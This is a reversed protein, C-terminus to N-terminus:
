LIAWTERKLKKNKKKWIINVVHFPTSKLGLFLGSCSSFVGEATWKLLMLIYIASAASHLKYKKTVGYFALESCFFNWQVGEVQIYSYM